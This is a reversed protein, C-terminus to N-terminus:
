ILPTSARNFGEGIFNVTEKALKLRITLVLNPNSTQNISSKILHLLKGLARAYAYFYDFLCLTANSTQSLIYLQLNKKLLHLNVIRLPSLGARIIVM